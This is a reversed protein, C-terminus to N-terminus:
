WPSMIEPNNSFNNLPTIGLVGVYIQFEKCIVRFLSWHLCHQYSDRSLNRTLHAQNLLHFWTSASQVTLLSSSWCCNITLGVWNPFVSMDRTGNLSLSKVKVRALFHSANEIAQLCLEQVCTDWGLFHKYKSHKNLEVPKNIFPLCDESASELHLIDGNSNTPAEHVWIHSLRPSRNM